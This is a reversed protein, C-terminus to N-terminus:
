SIGPPRPRHQDPLLHWVMTLALITVVIAPWREGIWHIVDM